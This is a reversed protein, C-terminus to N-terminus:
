LPGMLLGMIWVLMSTPHLDAPDGKVDPYCGSIYQGHVVDSACPANDSPIAYCATNCGLPTYVNDPFSLHM